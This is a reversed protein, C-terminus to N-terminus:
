RRSLCAVLLWQVLKVQGSAIGISDLHRPGDARNLQGITILRDVEPHIRGPAQDPLRDGPGFPQGAPVDRGTQHIGVGM